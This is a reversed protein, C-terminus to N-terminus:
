GLGVKSREAVDAGDSRLGGRGARDSGPVLTPQPLGDWPNDGAWRWNLEFWNLQHAASETRPLEIM